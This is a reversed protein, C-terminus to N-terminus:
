TDVRVALRAHSNSGPFRHAWFSDRSGTWSLSKVRQLQGETEVREAIVRLGKTDAFAVVARCPVTSDLTLQAM